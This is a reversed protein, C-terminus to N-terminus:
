KGGSRKKAEEMAAADKDRQANMANGTKQMQSAYAAQDGNAPKGSPNLAVGNGPKVTGEDASDKSSCGVSALATLAAVIVLVHKL